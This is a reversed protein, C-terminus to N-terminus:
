PLVIGVINRIAVLNNQDLLAICSKNVNFLVKQQDNGVSNM